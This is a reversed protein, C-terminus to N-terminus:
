SVLLTSLTNSPPKSSNISDRNFLLFFSSFYFLFMYLLLQQIVVQLGKMLKNKDGLLRTAPPTEPAEMRALSNNPM